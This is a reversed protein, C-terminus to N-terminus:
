AIHKERLLAWKIFIFKLVYHMFPFVFLSYSVCKYLFSFDFLPACHIQIKRSQFIVKIECKYYKCNESNVKTSNVKEWQLNCPLNVLAYSTPKLSNIMHSCRFRLRSQAIACDRGHKRQGCVYLLFM